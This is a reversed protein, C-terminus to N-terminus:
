SPRLKKQYEQVESYTLNEKIITTQMGYRIGVLTYLSRSFIKRKMKGSKYYELYDVSITTSIGDDNLYTLLLMDAEGKIELKLQFYIRYRIKVM